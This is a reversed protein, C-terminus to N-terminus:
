KKVPQYMVVEERVKIWKEWGYSKAMSTIVERASDIELNIVQRNASPYPYYVVRILLTEHDTEIIDLNYPFDTSIRRNAISNVKLALWEIRTPTYSVLGPRNTQDEAVSVSVLCGAVILVILVSAAIWHGNKM